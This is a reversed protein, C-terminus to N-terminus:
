LLVFPFTLEIRAPRYLHLSPYTYFFVIALCLCSISDLLCSSPYGQPHSLNLYSGTRALSQPSSTSLSGKYWPIHSCESRVVTDSILISGMFLFGNNSWCHHGKSAVWIFREVGRFHWQKDKRKGSVYCAEDYCLSGEVLGINVVHCNQV